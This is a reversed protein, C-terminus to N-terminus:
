WGAGLTVMREENRIAFELFKVDNPLRQPFKDAWEVVIRPHLDFLEEWGIADLESARQLRYWDCHVFPKGGQYQHVIAFTPSSVSDECHMGLALGKVFTTKGAGLDGQLALSWRDPLSMALAAGFQIMDQETPLVINEGSHHPIKM